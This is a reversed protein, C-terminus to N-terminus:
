CNRERIDYELSEGWCGNNFFLYFRNKRTKDCCKGVFNLSQFVICLFIILVLSLSKDSVKIDIVM